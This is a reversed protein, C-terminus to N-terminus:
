SGVGELALVDDLMHGLWTRVLEDWTKGLKEDRGDDKSVGSVRM